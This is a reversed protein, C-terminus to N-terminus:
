VVILVQLSIGTVTCLLKPYGFMPGNRGQDPDQGVTLIKKSMYKLPCDWSILQHSLAM